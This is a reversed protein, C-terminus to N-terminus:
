RLQQRGGPFCPHGHGPDPGLHRRHGGLPSGGGPDGVLWLSETASVRANQRESATRRKPEILGEKLMKAVFFAGDTGMRAREASLPAPWDGANEVWRGLASGLENLSSFHLAGSQVAGETRSEDSPALLALPIPAALADALDADHGRSVLLDAAALLPAAHASRAVVRLRSLAPIRARAKFLRREVRAADGVFAAIQLHPSIPLATAALDLVIRSEGPGVRIALVRDGSRLGWERRLGERGPRKDLMAVESLLQPLPPVGGVVDHVQVNLAPPASAVADPAGDLVVAVGGDQVVNRVADMLPRNRSFLGPRNVKIRVLEVSPVGERLLARRLARGQSAVGAHATPLIV